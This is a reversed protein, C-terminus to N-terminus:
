LRHTVDNNIDMQLEDRLANLIKGLLNTGRWKSPDLIRPDDAALGVGWIRDYPSAEVLITDGTDLLAQQIHPNQTFKARCGDLVIQERHAFWIADTYGKVERGLDKCERPSKAAMIKDAVETDGFLEAKKLMMYQENWKFKLGDVEFDARHWNSFPNEYGWFFTFKSRPDQPANSGQQKAAVRAKVEAQFDLGKALKEIGDAIHDCHCALASREQKCWCMLIIKEGERVRQSIKVMERYIPGGKLVDPEFDEELHAKIVRRREEADQWNKLHHRNGFIPNQRDGDIETEGPVPKVGGKRKSGVRISGKVEFPAPDGSPTKPAPSEEDFLSMQAAQRAPAQSAQISTPNAEVPKAPREQPRESAAPIVPVQDSPLSLIARRIFTVGDQVQQKIQEPTHRLDRKDLGRQIFGKPLTAVADIGLTHAAVIGALDVGTQGGSVVKAVPWYQHLKALAITLRLNIVDQTWGHKGLTYIGNGAVNIVPNQINRTKLWKYMMRAAQIPDESLPIALYKDGAAKHTLKEGATTFDVAFAVTLDASRANVYTRPSYHESSHERIELM